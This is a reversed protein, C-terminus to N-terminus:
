PLVFRWLLSTHSFSMLSYEEGVFNHNLFNYYNMVIVRWLNPLVKGNVPGKNLGKIYVEIRHLLSMYSM